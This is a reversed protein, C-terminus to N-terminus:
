CWKRLSCMSTKQSPKSSEMKTRLALRVLCSEACFHIAFHILVALMAVLLLLLLPALLSFVQVFLIICMSKGNPQYMPGGSDESCISRYLPPPNGHVSNVLSAEMMNCVLAWIGLAIPFLPAVILHLVNHLTHEQVLSDYLHRRRPNTLLLVLVLCIINLCCTKDLQLNVSALINLVDPKTYMMQMLLYALMSMTTRLAGCSFNRLLIMVFVGIFGHSMSASPVIPKLRFDTLQWTILVFFGFAPLATGLSHERALSFCFFEMSVILLCIPKLFDNLCFVVQMNVIRTPPCLLSYCVQPSRLLRMLPMMHTKPSRFTHHHCDTLLYHKHSSQKNEDGINLMDVLTYGIHLGISAVITGCIPLTSRAWVIWLIYFDCDASTKVQNRPFLLPMRDIGYILSVHTPVFPLVCGFCTDRSSHTTTPLNKFDLEQEKPGKTGIPSCSPGGFRLQSPGGLPSRRLKVKWMRKKFDDRDSKAHEIAESSFSLLPTPSAPPEFMRANCGGEPGPRQLLQTWSDRDGNYSPVGLKRRKPGVGGALLRSMRWVTAYDNRKQAVLLENVWMQKRESKDRRSLYRLQKDCKNASVQARFVTCVESLQLFYERNVMSLKGIGARHYKGIAAWITPIHIHGLNRLACHAEVRDQGAQCLEQNRHRHKGNRKEFHGKAVQLISEHLVSYIHNPSQLALERPDSSDLASEVEDIFEQRGVGTRANLMIWDHDWCTIEPKTEFLITCDKNLALPMHDRLAQTNIIQLASGFTKWVECKRVRANWSIPVIQYDVTSSYRGGCHYFTNGANYFSNTICLGHNILLQGLYQGNVDTEARVYPGMHNQLLQDYFGQRIGLKANADLMIIPICRDPLKDIIRSIENWFVEAMWVENPLLSCFAYGVIYCIDTNGTKIRVAGVRGHLIPNTPTYISRFQHKQINKPIGIACGACKSKAAQGHPWSIWLHKSTRFGVCKQEDKGRSVCAGQLGVTGCAFQDSVEEWRNPQLMSMPNYSITWHRNRSKNGM